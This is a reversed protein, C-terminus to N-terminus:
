PHHFFPFPPSRQGNNLLYGEFRAVQVRPTCRAPRLPRLSIGNASALERLASEEPGQIAKLQSCHIYEAAANHVQSFAGQPRRATPFYGLGPDSALAVDRTPRREGPQHYELGSKWVHGSSMPGREGAEVNRVVCLRARVISM